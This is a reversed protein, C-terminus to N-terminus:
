QYIKLITWPGPPTVICGRLVGLLPIINNMPDGKNLTLINASLIKPGVRWKPHIEVHGGHSLVFHRYPRWGDTISVQILLVDM